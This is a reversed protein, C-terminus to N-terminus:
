DVDHIAADILMRHNQITHLIKAKTIRLWLLTFLWGYKYTFISCVITAVATLIGAVVGILLEQALPLHLIIIASLTGISSLLIHLISWGATTRFFLNQARFQLEEEQKYFKAVQSKPLLQLCIKAIGHVILGLPLFIVGVFLVKSKLLTNERGTPIGAQKSIRHYALLLDDFLVDREELIAHALLTRQYVSLKRDILTILIDELETMRTRAVEVFGNFHSEQKKQDVNGELNTYEQAAYRRLRDWKEQVIQSVATGALLITNAERFTPFVAEHWVILQRETALMANHIQGPQLCEPTVTLVQGRIQVQSLAPDMYNEYNIGLVVIKINKGAAKVYQYALQSAGIKWANEHRGTGCIESPFIIVWKGDNLANRIDQLQAKIKELIRLVEQKTKGDRTLQNDLPLMLFLQRMKPDTVFGDWTVIQIDEPNEPLLHLLVSAVDLFRGTHSVVFLTPEGPKIQKM